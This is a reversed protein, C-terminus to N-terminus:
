LANLRAELSARAGAFDKIEGAGSPAVGGSVPIPLERGDYGKERLYAIAVEQKGAELIQHARALDGGARPDNRATWLLDVIEKSGSKYGLKAAEGYIEQVQSEQAQQAEYQRRAAEAQQREAALMQQFEKVTLPRDEVPPTQPQQGAPAQPEDIKQFPGQGPDVADALERLRAAAGTPNQAFERALDLWEQREEDTYPAFADRYPAFQTRYHAAQSRIDEVYARDFQEQGRDGPTGGAPQDFPTGDSRTAGAPPHPNPNFSPAEFGDPM